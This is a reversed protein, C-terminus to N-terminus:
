AESKGMQILYSEMRADSLGFDLLTVTCKKQLILLTFACNLYVVLTNYRKLFWNITIKKV